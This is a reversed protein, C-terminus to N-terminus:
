LLNWVQHMKTTLTDTQNIIGSLNTKALAVASQTAAKTAANLSKMNEATKGVADAADAEKQKAIALDYYARIASTAEAYASSALQGAKAYKEQADALAQAQDVYLQTLEDGTLDLIKESYDTAIGTLEERLDAAADKADQLANKLNTGAAHAADNLYSNSNILADALEWTSDTAAAMGQSALREAQTNAEGISTQIQNVLDNYERINQTGFGAVSEDRFKVVSINLKNLDEATTKFSDNAADINDKSEKAASAVKKAAVAEAEMATANAQAEAAANQKVVVVNELVALQEQEALTLEGDKALELTKVSLATEAVAVEQAKLQAIANAQQM